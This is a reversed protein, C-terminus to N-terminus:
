PCAITIFYKIETQKILDKSLKEVMKRFDKDERLREPKDKDSEESFLGGDGEGDM